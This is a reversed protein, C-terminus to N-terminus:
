VAPDPSLTRSCFHSLLVTSQEAESCAVLRGAASPSSVQAGLISRASGFGTSGKKPICLLAQAKDGIGDSLESNRGPCLLWSGIVALCLFVPVPPGPLGGGAATSVRHTLVAVEQWCPGEWSWPLIGPSGTGPNSSTAAPSGQPCPLFSSAFPFAKRWALEAPPQWHTSNYM